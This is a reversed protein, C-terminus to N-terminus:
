SLKFPTGYKPLLRFCNIKFSWHMILQEASPDTDVFIRNAPNLTIFSSNLELINAPSPDFHRTLTWAQMNKGPRLLGTTMNNHFRYECYRPMYGFNAENIEKNFMPDPHYKAVVERKLTAQEGLRAFSPWAFDFYSGRTFMRHLGQSYSAEPFASTLIYIIGPEQANYRFLGRSNSAIGHGGMTGLASNETTESTQLVESIAITQFVSGILEPRQLRADLPSTGFHVKLAEIFRTGGVANLELWSQIAYATRLDNITSDIAGLQFYQGDVELTGNPDFYAGTTGGVAMQGGAVGEVTGDLTGVAGPRFIPSPGAADLMVKAIGDINASVPVSVAPGKQAFPLSATYYDRPWNRRRLGDNVPNTAGATISPKNFGQDPGQLNEDRYWEWWILDYAQRYLASFPTGRGESMTVDIPAGLKDHFGGELFSYEGAYRPMAPPPNGIQEGGNTFFSEWGTGISTDGPWCLRFPVFFATTVVQIRDMAPTVLPMLRILNRPNISIRDGALIEECYIPVLTGMKSTTRHSHSLDFYNGQPAPHQIANFIQNSKM